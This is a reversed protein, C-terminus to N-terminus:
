ERGFGQHYQKIAEAKSGVRMIRYIKKIHYRVTNISIDLYDAIMQYSKGDVLLKLVQMDKQNLNVTINRNIPQALKEPNFYNVLRQAIFSSIAAGGRKASNLYFLIESPKLSKTLYGTAGALLARFIFVDDDYSSFIIVETKPRISRLKPILDISSQEQFQIELLLYDLEFNQGYIAILKDLSNVTFVCDLAETKLCFGELFHLINKDDDAIGIRSIQQEM